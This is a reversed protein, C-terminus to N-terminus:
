LPPIKALLVVLAWQMEASAWCYTQDTPVEGEVGAADIWYSAASSLSVEAAGVAVWRTVMM